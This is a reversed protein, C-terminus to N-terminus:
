KTNSEPYPTPQEGKVVRAGGLLHADVFHNVSCPAEIFRANRIIGHQNAVSEFASRSSEDFVLRGDGLEGNDLVRLTPDAKCRHQDEKSMDSVILGRQHKALSSHYTLALMPRPLGSHNPVGRHWMRPDRFCVGGAPITMRSPPRWQEVLQPHNALREGPQWQTVATEHHTGPYIETAGSAETIESLAVSCSVTTTPPPWSQGAATAEAESKWAFPRDFHLPQYGSGPCNVNGNYFGLWAGVGLLGTVVNEILPNAVLESKVFPAYRRPGLQLHGIGTAKEHRTPEARTRVLTVDELISQLLLECTEASILGSVVAYGNVEFSSRVRALKDPTLAGSAREDQTIEFHTPEM